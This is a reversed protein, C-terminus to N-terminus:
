EIFFNIIGVKKDFQDDCYFHGRKFQDQEAIRFVDELDSEEILRVHSIVPLSLDDCKAVPYVISEFYRFGKGEFLHLIQLDESCVRASVFKVGENKLFSLCSDLLGNMVGKSIPNEPAIIWNITAM